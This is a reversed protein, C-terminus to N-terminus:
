AGRAGSRDLMPKLCGRACRSRRPVATRAHEAAEGALNYIDSAQKSFWSGMMTCADAAVYVSKPAM